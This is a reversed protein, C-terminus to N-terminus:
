ENQESKLVLARTPPRYICIGRFQGRALPARVLMLTSHGKSVVMALPQQRRGRGQGSGEEVEEEEQEGEPGAAVVLRVVRFFALESPRYSRRRGGGEEEKEVAGLAVDVAM